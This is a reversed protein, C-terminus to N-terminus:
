ETVGIHVDYLDDRAEAIFEVCLSGGILNEVAGGGDGGGDAALGREVAAVAVPGGAGQRGNPM